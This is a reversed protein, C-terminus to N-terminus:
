LCNDLVPLIIDIAKQHRRAPPKSGTAVDEYGFRVGVKVDIVGAIHV